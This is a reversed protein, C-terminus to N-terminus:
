HVRPRFRTLWTLADPRSPFTWSVEQKHATRDLTSCGAACAVLLTPAGDVAAKMGPYEIPGRPNVAAAEAAGIMALQALGGLM